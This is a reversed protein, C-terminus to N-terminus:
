VAMDPRQLGSESATIQSCTGAICVFWRDSQGAGAGNPGHHVVLQSNLTKLSDALRTSAGETIGLMTRPLVFTGVIMIASRAASRMRSARPRRPAQPARVGDSQKLRGGHRLSTTVLRM